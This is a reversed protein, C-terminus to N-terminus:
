RSARNWTSVGVWPHFTASVWRAQIVDSIGLSDQFCDIGFTVAAVIRLEKQHPTDDLAGRLLGFARISQKLSKRRTVMLQDLRRRKALARSRANM